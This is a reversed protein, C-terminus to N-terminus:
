CLFKFDELRKPASALGAAHHGVIPLQRVEGDGAFQSLYAFLIAHLVVLLGLMAGLMKISEPPVGSLWDILVIALIASDLILFLWSLVSAQFFHFRLWLNTSAWTPLNPWFLRTQGM